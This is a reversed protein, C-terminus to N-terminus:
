LVNKRRVGILGCAKAFRAQIIPRLYTSFYGSLLLAVLSIIVISVLEIIRSYSYPLLASLTSLLLAPLVLIRLVDDKLWITGLGPVLKRHVYGVWFILNIANVSMWVVGAGVAGYFTAGIIVAPILFVIMCVNGILHYRLNGFAFQLYYPFAAIALCGNGIAYLRLIPASQSALDPDGTWAFLVSEAFCALVVAASGAIVTVIQTSNRYVSLLENQAKKAHLRAMHPMLASSVPGTVVMIGSGALVALTFYGYDALSLVGSLVLKDVQTVLVWIASTIAISLAFGLVGFAPRLSWGISVSLNKPVIRNSMWAMVLIEFIAVALQHIFFVQPTYGWVWMTLFVGIFRVSAVIANFASLWVLREGGIIVGRYLGTLWRLAVSVAMIQVAFIVENEELAQVNLWNTSIPGSLWWLGAGGLVAVGVFILGLARFLQRYALPGMVGGHYRATERAITPTLGMDLLTFGAQLMTFFGVLGYAEEGLYRMYLPLILIGLGTVYLQSAYSAVINRNLSM